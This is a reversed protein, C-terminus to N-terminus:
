QITNSKATFQALDYIGLQKEIAAVKEVMGTFGAEGFLKHELEEFQEGLEEYQKRPLLSPFAPFLVTDERAEHPRYMRSFAMLQAGLLRADKKKISNTIAATLVKGEEHQQRLIGVLKTQKQTKEFLPFVHDEELREHYGEIFTKIIDCAIGIPALDMSQKDHLETAVHDYILLLRNLLGHERMLDEVPSVEEEKHKMSGKQAITPLVIGFTMPVAAATGILFQRRTKIDLEATM